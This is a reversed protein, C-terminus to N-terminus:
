RLEQLFSLLDQLCDEPLVPFTKLPKLLRYLQWINHMESLATLVKERQGPKWSTEWASLSATPFHTLSKAQLETKPSNSAGM